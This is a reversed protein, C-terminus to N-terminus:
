SREAQYSFLSSFLRTATFLIFFVIIPYYKEFFSQSLSSRRSFRVTVYGSEASSDTPSSEVQRGRRKRGVSESATTSAQPPACEEFSDKAFFTIEMYQIADKRRFPKADSELAASGVTRLTIGSEASCDKLKPTKSLPGTYQRLRTIKMKDDSSPRDPTPIDNSSEHCLQYFLSAQEAGAVSLLGTLDLAGEPSHTVKTIKGNEWHIAASEGFTLNGSLVGAVCPAHLEVSWEGGLHDVINTPFSVEAGFCLTGLLVIALLVGRYAM